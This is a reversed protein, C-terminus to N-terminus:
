NYGTVVSRGADYRTTLCSSERCVQPAAGRLSQSALMSVLSVASVGGKTKLYLVYRLQSNPNTGRILSELRALAQKLLAVVQPAVVVEVANM